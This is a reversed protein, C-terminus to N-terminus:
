VAKSSHGSYLLSSVLTQVRCMKKSRAKLLIAAAMVLMPFQSTQARSCNSASELISTFIPAREHLEHMIEAWDTEKLSHVSTTHLLSPSPSKRCITKCEHKVVNIVERLTADRLAPAKLLTRATYQPKRYKISKVMRRFPTTVQYRRVVARGKTHVVQYTCFWELAALQASVLCCICNYLSM